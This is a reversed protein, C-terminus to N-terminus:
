ERVRKERRECAEEEGEANQRRRKRMLGGKVLKRKERQMKTKRKRERMKEGRVLRWRGRQMGDKSREKDNARRISAEEEGEAIRREKM